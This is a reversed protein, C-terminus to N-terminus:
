YIIINPKPKRGIYGFVRDFTKLRFGSTRASVPCNLVCAMCRICKSEDVVYRENDIAGVPCKKACVGCQRCILSDAEPKRVIFRTGREPFGAIFMPLKPRPLSISDSIGNELKERVSQGFRYIEVSDARDPRGSGVKNNEHTRLSGFRCFSHEGVFAGAAVLRFNCERALRDFQGLSIGIDMNGFVALTVLPRGNGNISRLHDYIFGPIREGHVPVAIVELDAKVTSSETRNEPLTINIFKGDCKMGRIFETVVNQTVGTASFYRVEVNMTIVRKYTGKGTRFINIM